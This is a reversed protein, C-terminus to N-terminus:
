GPEQQKSQCTNCGLRMPYRKDQGHDECEVNVQIEQNEVMARITNSKLHIDMWSMGKNEITLEIEGDVNSIRLSGKDQQQRDKFSLMMHGFGFDSCDVHATLRYEEEINHLFTMGEHAREIEIARNFLVSNYHSVVQQHELAHNILTKKKGPSLEDFGEWSNDTFHWINNEFGEDTADNLAIQISAGPYDVFSDSDDLRGGVVSGGCFQTVVRAFGEAMRLFNEQSLKQKIGEPDVLLGNILGALEVASVDKNM